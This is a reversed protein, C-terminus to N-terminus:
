LFSFQRDSGRDLGSFGRTVSRGSATSIPPLVVAGVGTPLPSQASGNKIQPSTINTWPGPAQVARAMKSIIKDDSSLHRVM